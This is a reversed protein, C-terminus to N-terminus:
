MCAQTKKSVDLVDADAVKADEKGRGGAVSVHGADQSPLGVVDTALPLASQAGGGEDSEAADTSDDTARHEALLVLRAVLRTDPRAHNRRRQNNDDRQGHAELELPRISTGLSTPLRNLAKHSEPIRQSRTISCGHSKTFHPM